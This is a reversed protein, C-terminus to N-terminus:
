KHAKAFLKSSYGRVRHDKDALLIITEHLIPLLGNNPKKAGAGNKYRPWDVAVMKGADLLENYSHTLIKRVSSDDDTVLKEVFCKVEDRAFLRSVIEQLYVHRL